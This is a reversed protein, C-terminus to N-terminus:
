GRADVQWTCVYDPNIVIEGTGSLTYQGAEAPRYAPADAPLVAPEVEGPREVVVVGDSV